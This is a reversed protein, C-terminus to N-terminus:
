VRTCSTTPASPEDGRVVLESDNLTLVDSSGPFTGYSAVFTDAMFDTMGAIMGSAADGSVSTIDTNTTTGTLKDGQVAWTGLIAVNMDSMGPVQQSMPVISQASSSGDANFTVTSTVHPQDPLPNLDRCQWIGVLKGADIAGVTDPVDVTPRPPPSGAACAALVVAATPLVFFRM